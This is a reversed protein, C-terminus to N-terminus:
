PSNGNREQRARHAFSALAREICQVTKRFAQVSVESFPGGGQDAVLVM